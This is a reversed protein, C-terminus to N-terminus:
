VQNLRLIIDVLEDRSREKLNEEDISCCEDLSSDGVSLDQMEDIQISSAHVALEELQKKLDGFPESSNPIPGPYGTQFGRSLYYGDEGSFGIAAAFEYGSIQELKLEFEFVNANSTVNNASIDLWYKAEDAFIYAERYAEQTVTNYVNIISSTSNLGAFGLTLGGTTALSTCYVSLRYAGPEIYLRDWDGSGFDIRRILGGNGIYNNKAGNVTSDVKFPHLRTGAYNFYKMYTALSATSKKMAPTKLTIDYTLCLQGVGLQNTVDNVFIMLSSAHLTKVDQGDVYAVGPDVYRSKYGKNLQEKTSYINKREYPAFIAANANNMAETISSPLTDSADYDQMMVVNGSTTTPCTQMYDVVLSNISYSEYNFAMQSLWPFVNANGPNVWEWYVNHFGAGAGSLPAVYEKHVVRVGDRVNRVQPKRNTFSAKYALPIRGNPRLGGRGRRNQLRRRPRNSRVPRGVRKNIKKNVKKALRKTVRKEIKRVSM